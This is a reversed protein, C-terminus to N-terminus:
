LFTSSIPIRDTGKGLMLVFTLVHDYIPRGLLGPYVLKTDPNVRPPVSETILGAGWFM